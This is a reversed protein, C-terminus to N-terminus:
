CHVLDNLQRNQGAARDSSVGATYVVLRILRLM